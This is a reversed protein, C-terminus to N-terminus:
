LSALICLKTSGKSVLKNKAQQFNSYYLFFFVSCDIPHIELLIYFLWYKFIAMARSKFNKNSNKRGIYNYSSNDIEVQENLTMKWNNIWITPTQRFSIVNFFFKFLFRTSIQSPRDTDLSALTIKKTGSVIWFKKRIQIEREKLFPALSVSHVEDILILISFWFIIM